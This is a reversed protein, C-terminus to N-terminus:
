DDDGENESGGDWGEDYEEALNQLGNCLAEREDYGGMRLRKVIQEIARVQDAVATSTTLGTHVAINDNKGSGVNLISAPFSDLLPFLLPTSFSQVVPGERFRDRVDREAGVMWEGRMAEARGFVHEKRKKEKGGRRGSEVRYERSFCDIDFSALAEGEGDGDDDGRRGGARSGVKEARAIKSSAKESLVDPDAVSLELKAIRRKGTSNITEELDQLTGRRGNSTRLRSPVTMSEIAVAQLAGIHWPSTRDFDLYSPIERPSNSVPIYVSSQEALVSMSRSSNEIQLLRKERPVDGDPAAHGGVGFTWIQVKGFGDDRLRELWGAAWGGWADDVGTFVQIGQLGDCEEVFLRFDRDVVDDEREMKGFLEWGVEWREFPMLADGVELEELGVLSRPHYFLRSYDSWYRVTDTSLAPPALGADLHTQYPSPAIPTLREVLPKSPWVSSDSVTIDEDREYLPSVKKLSGFSSKLDYILTRPTFTETGDPALGPRFLIDHNIPSEPAPPYTFYSEGDVAASGGAAVENEDSMIHAAGESEHLKERASREHIGVMTVGIPWAANGISLRLYGDNAHVYRREQAAHVIEVVPELISDALDFKELKKFLPRMNDLAQLMAAYAQKGQYSSKVEPDRLSLTIEWERLVMTFYSALQRFVFKRAEADKPVKSPVKMDKEPVLQLTTPIPGQTMTAKLTDAGIRKKYRRLRQKHTEGFLTAPENLARLKAILAESPMDEDEPIPTGDEEGEKKRPPLDPLGLRKRRRREEEEAEEERRRKSEEALRQRKERRAEEKVAEDEEAKRKKALREEKAKEAAEQEARYAAQRQAELESRKLYKKETSEAPKASEKGKKIHASMLKAFDM